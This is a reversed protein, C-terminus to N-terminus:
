AHAAPGGPGVTAQRIVPKQELQGAAPKHFIPAPM